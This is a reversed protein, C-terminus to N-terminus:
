LAAKFAWGALWFVKTYPLGRIPGDLKELKSSHAKHFSGTIDPIKAADREESLCLLLNHRSFIEKSL